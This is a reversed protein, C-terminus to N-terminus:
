LRFIYRISYSSFIKFIFCLVIYFKFHKFFNQENWLCSLITSFHRKKRSVTSGSSQNIFDSVCTYTLYPPWKSLIIVSVCGHAKTPRFRLLQITIWPVSLTVSKTNKILSLAILWKPWKFRDCKLSYVNVYSISM